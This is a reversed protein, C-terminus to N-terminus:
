YVTFKALWFKCIFADRFQTQDGKLVVTLDFVKATHLKYYEIQM